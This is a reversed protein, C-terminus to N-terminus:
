DGGCGEQGLGIQRAITLLLKEGMIGVFGKM